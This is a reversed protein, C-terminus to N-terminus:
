RWEAEFVVSGLAHEEGSLPIEANRAALDLVDGLVAGDVRSADSGGIRHIDSIPCRASSRLQCRQSMGVSGSFTQKDPYIPLSRRTTLVVRKVASQVCLGKTMDASRLGRERPSAFIGVISSVWASSVISYLAVGKM